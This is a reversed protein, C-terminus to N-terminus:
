RLKKIYYFGIGLILMILFIVSYLSNKIEPAFTIYGTIHSSRAILILTVIIALLALFVYSRTTFIKKIKKLDLINTLTELIIKRYHSIFMFTTSILLIIIGLPLVAWYLVEDTFPTILIIVSLALLIISTTIKKHKRVLKILFYLLSLGTLSILIIPAIAYLWLETGTPKEITIVKAIKEVEKKIIQPIIFPEIPPKPPPPVKISETEKSGTSGANRSVISPTPTVGPPTVATPVKEGILFRGFNTTTASFEAPDSTLNIVTTTLETWSSDYRYLRIDDPDISGLNAQTINFHITATGILTENLTINAYNFITTVQTSSPATFGSPLSSTYARLQINDNVHSTLGTIKSIHEYNCSITPIVQGAIPIILTEKQCGIINVSFVINQQVAKSIFPPYRIIFVGFIILLLFIGLLIEIKKNSLM